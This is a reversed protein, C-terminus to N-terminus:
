ISLRFGFILRFRELGGIFGIKLWFVFIVRKLVMLFWFLAFDSFVEGFM